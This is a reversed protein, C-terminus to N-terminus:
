HDHETQEEGATFSKQSCMVKSNGLDNGFTEKVLIKLKTKFFIYFETVETSQSAPYSTM